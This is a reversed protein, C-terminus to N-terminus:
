YVDDDHIEDHNKLERIGRFSLGLLQEGSNQM